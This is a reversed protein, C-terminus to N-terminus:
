VTLSDVTTASVRPASGVPRGQSLASSVYYRYRVGRKKAHSPTMRNGADDYLRGMLLGGSGARTTSARHQSALKQQVAEFLERALIATYRGLCVEGRHVVEGIYFRNRLLYALSGRTFPVGGITRGTSLPRIKTFM